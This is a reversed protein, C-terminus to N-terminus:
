MKEEEEEEPGLKQRFARTMSDPASGEVVPGTTLDLLNHNPESHNSSPSLHLKLMILLGTAENLHM